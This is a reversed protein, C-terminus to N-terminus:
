KSKRLNVLLIGAAAVALGLIGVPSVREGLFIWALITIQILMTNNIISSEVATLVQLTKNWLWFAFATNVVALVLIALWGALSIPPLGQFILGIGLLLASGVGMSIATVVLPPIVGTRNASRGLISAAANATVTAAALTLGLAKGEFAATPQFYLLVGGLFIGIGLWQLASTKEKLFAASFVAVLLASFNLLLSFTIADLYKLTIFQGGQTLTYFVVGLISLKWWDSPSLSRVAERQRFLAPALVLFALFYRLGAFTLPPIESIYNKIIVWSTSWVLTVLLAQFIAAIRNSKKM